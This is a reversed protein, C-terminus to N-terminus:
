LWALLRDDATFKGIAITPIVSLITPIVGTLCLVLYIFGNIMSYGTKAGVRKHVPHGIYVVTGFPSGLVAGLLTGLGDAIMTETIPYPDGAKQASVLCMMDTFSAAISFPLVTGIYPGLNQFGVIFADGAWLGGSVPAVVGDQTGYAWGAICGFAVIPVAEPMYFGNWLHFRGL